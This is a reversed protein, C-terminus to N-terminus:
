RGKDMGGRSLKHVCQGSISSVGVVKSKLTGSAELYLCTLDSFIYRETIALTILRGHRAEHCDLGSKM